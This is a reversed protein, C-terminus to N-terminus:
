EISHAVTITFSQGDTSQKVLELKGNANVSMNGHKLTTFQVRDHGRVCYDYTGDDSELLPKV